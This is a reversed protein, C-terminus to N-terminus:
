VFFYFLRIYILFFLLFNLHSFFIFFGGEGKKKLVVYFWHIVKNGRLTSFLPKSSSSARNSNSNSTCDTNLALSEVITALDSTVNNDPRPHLVVSLEGTTCGAGGEGTVAVVAESKGISLVSEAITESTNKAILNDVSATQDSTVVSGRLSIDTCDPLSTTSSSKRGTLIGSSNKNKIDSGGSGCCGIGGIGIGIGIGVGGGGGDLTNNNSNIRLDYKGEAGMRYSNSGGHDWTVDIWGNHLEGTISGEGPPIGDQDKWKWDLGRAVRAGSVLHRLVQTRILRRQRRVGAEAERAAKGLDECVGTVEGYVEFGSVSLYHTQGSANKGTQQLRLHRWGQLEDSPSELTWTATSGPENLSCDDCHTIITIWSIGDKSVQFSWNRLASRGYGRAHRLTYATPILWVGLDISFWARKDDNTHCNLANQERSLIDELHGYPLTRGDSSTVVLLGYQAPNIWENTTKGNTGIWYIVGNEDFDNQYQFTLKDVDKLKKVFTFTSRDHDHWQKAVMKLLHNELQQITSLPEMKLSRGTRDILASECPSKELRFRLRRTLIQLGYGSGPTDYLYVPLKEISELVSILKQVLIKASNNDDNTNTSNFCSKFVAIRQLRLKTLRSSPLQITNTPGALLALLAQVLGSSHLEYASVRGEENLLLKLEELSVQLVNRWERNGSLQKQCAREIQNVIASLKGVVGRPQAQAAKFYNEYIEQAQTKVKQKIAEIKSRLRKGRKGAWGAAFDPGLFYYIYIM